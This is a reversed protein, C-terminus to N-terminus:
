VSEVVIFGSIENLSVESFVRIRVILVNNSVVVLLAPWSIGTHSKHLMIDVKSSGYEPFDLVAKRSGDSSNFPLLAKHGDVALVVGVKEEVHGTEFDSNKGLASTEHLFKDGLITDPIKLVVSGFLSSSL